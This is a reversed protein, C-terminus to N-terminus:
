TEDKNEKIQKWAEIVAKALARLEEPSANAQDPSVQLEIGADIWIHSRLQVSGPQLARPPVIPPDGRLVERIRELSIGAETLQRIHLLKDLHSPLYYAARTEGHPRDLLGIQIYYRVTRKPLASLSALEDLTFTKTNM